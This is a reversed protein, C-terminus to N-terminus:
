SEKNSLRRFRDNSALKLDNTDITIGAVSSAFILDTCKSTVLVVDLKCLGIKKDQCYLYVSALYQAVLSM